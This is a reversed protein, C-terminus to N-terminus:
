SVAYTVTAGINLFHFCEGMVSRGVWFHETLGKTYGSETILFYKIVAISSIDTDM